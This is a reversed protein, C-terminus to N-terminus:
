VSLPTECSELEINLELPEILIVVELKGLPEAAAFVEIKTFPLAANIVAAL